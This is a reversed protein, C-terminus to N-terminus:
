KVGVCIVCLGRQGNQQFMRGKWESVNGGQHGGKTGQTTLARRGGQGEREEKGDRGSYVRRARRRCKVTVTFGRLLLSGPTSIGRGDDIAQTRTAKFTKNTIWLRVAEEEEEEEEEEAM